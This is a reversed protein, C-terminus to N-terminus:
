SLARLKRKIYPNASKGEYSYNEGIVGGNPNVTIVLEITAREEPTLETM